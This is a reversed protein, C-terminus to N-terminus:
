ALSVEPDTPDGTESCEPCEIYEDDDAEFQGNANFRGDVMWTVGCDENCCVLEIRAERRMRSM